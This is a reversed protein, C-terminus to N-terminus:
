QSSVLVTQGAVATASASVGSVTITYSGAPLSNFKYTGAAGTKATKTLGNGSLTVVVNSLPKGASNYAVGALTS